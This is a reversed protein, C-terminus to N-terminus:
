KGAWILCDRPIDLLIDNGKINEKAFVGLITSNADTSRIELRHDVFEGRSRLWVIMVHGHGEADIAEQISAHALSILLAWLLWQYYKMM